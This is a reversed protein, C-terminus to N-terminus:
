NETGSGGTLGLRSASFNTQYNTANLQQYYGSMKQQYRVYESVGYSAAGILGGVVAGAAGFVSGAQAGQFISGLGAKARQLTNKANSYVQQAMYDEQLTTYRNMSADAINLANETAASVAQIGMGMMFGADSTIPNKSKYMKKAKKNLQQKAYDLPRLTLKAMTDVASSEKEKEEEDSKGSGNAVISIVFRRTEAM